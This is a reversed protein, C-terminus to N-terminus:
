MQPLSPVRSHVIGTPRYIAGDRTPPDDNEAVPPTERGRKELMLLVTKLPSDFM